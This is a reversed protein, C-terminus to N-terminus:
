RRSRCSRRRARVGGRARCRPTPSRASRRVAVDAGLLRVGRDRRRRRRRRARRRAVLEFGGPDRHARDVEGAAVEAVQGVVEGVDQVERPQAGVEVVELVREAGVDLARPEHELVAALGLGREHHRPHAHVRGVVVRPPGYLSRSGIPRPAVAYAGVLGAQLSPRSLTARKQARAKSRGITMVRSLVSVPRGPENGAICMSATMFPRVITAGDSGVGCVGIWMSSM